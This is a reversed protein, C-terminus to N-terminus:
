TLQLKYKLLDSFTMEQAQQVFKTFNAFGMESPDKDSMDVFFVRKGMSLFQESYSIARKEADKDLAIYIDQVKSSVLKKMLNNSLSKGLIPVANRKVAMADFVGEVLILPQDWNIMNEFAIIDKSASPNKYKMFADEFTRGVFFNLNNNEDYSPVIIRGAYDGTMCYGINYKIFDNDTLGRRYLYRRVKNAIISTTSATHLPQFEKPLEVVELEHYTIKEGKKVYKLVEIAEEKGIKMQRLLSKITRGRTNCVWCEWPNHGKEDSTMKIELKPKRHNCFPCHFAYNERARKHSKGLVNEVASLLLANEM